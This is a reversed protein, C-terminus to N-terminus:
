TVQGFECLGLAPSSSNSGLCDKRSNALKVQKVAFRICMYSKTSVYISKYTIAEREGRLPTLSTFLYKWYLIILVFVSFFVLSKPLLLDGLVEVKMSMVEWYGQSETLASKVIKM